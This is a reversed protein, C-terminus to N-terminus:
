DASGKEKGTYMADILDKYKAAVQKRKVKFSATLMGNDVSFEQDIVRFYKISEFSALGKNAEDLYGQIEKQVAEGHMDPPNGTRQAWAALKEKDVTVLAVCYKRNDGIVV